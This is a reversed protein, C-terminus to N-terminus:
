LAWCHSVMKNVNWSLFWVTVWDLKSSGHVGRGPPVSVPKYTRNLIWIDWRMNESMDEYRM